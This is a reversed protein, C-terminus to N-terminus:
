IFTSNDNDQYNSLLYGCYESDFFPFQQISFSAADKCAFPRNINRTMVWCRSKLTVGATNDRCYELRGLNHQCKRLNQSNSVPIGLFSGDKQRRSVIMCLLAISIRHAVIGESFRCNLWAKSLFLNICVQRWNAPCYFALFFLRSSDILTWWKENLPLEKLGSFYSKNM